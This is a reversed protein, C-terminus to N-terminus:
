FKTLCAVAKGFVHVQDLVDGSYEQDEYDPNCPRLIVTDGYQYFRKITTSNDVTVAAIQGNEVSVADKFLVLSGDAIGCGTMSRGEAILAFDANIAADIEVYDYERIAEIPNGCASPGLVPVNKLNSLDPVPLEPTDANLKVEMDDVEELLSNLSVGTTKAVSNLFDISVNKQKEHEILSIYANSCGVMEAFRRGSLGHEKRYSKIYESLNM